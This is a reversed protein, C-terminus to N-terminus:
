LAMQLVKGCLADPLRRRLTLLVHYLDDKDRKAKRQFQRLRRHTIWFTREHSLLADRDIGSLAYVSAFFARAQQEIEDPLARIAFPLTRKWKIDGQRGRKPKGAGRRAAEVEQKLRLAFAEHEETSLGCAKEVAYLFTLLQIPMDWFTGFFCAEVKQYFPDSMPFRTRIMANHKAIASAMPLFRAQADAAACSATKCM